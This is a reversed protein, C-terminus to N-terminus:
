ATPLASLAREWIQWTRLWVMAQWDSDAPYFQELLNLKIGRGTADNPN